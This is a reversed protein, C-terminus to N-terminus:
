IQLVLPTMHQTSRFTGTFNPWKAELFADGAM